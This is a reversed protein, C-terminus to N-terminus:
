NTEKTVNKFEVKEKSYCTVSYNWDVMKASNIKWDMQTFLLYQGASIDTELYCDRACNSKNITGKIYQSNKSTKMTAIDDPLRILFMRMPSLRYDSVRPFMRDAVQSISFNYNGDEPVQVLHAGWDGAHSM